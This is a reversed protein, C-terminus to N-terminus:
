LDKLVGSFENHVIRAQDLRGSGVTHTRSQASHQVGKQWWENVMQKCRSSGWWSFSDGHQGSSTGVLLYKLSLQKM